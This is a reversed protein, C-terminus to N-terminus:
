ENECAWRTHPAENDVFWARLIRGYGYNPIGHADYFARLIRNLRRLNYLPVNQFYHHELHYNSNLYIWRWFFNGDIRTSWRAVESPDIAYHQGLRNLSFAVPFVLLYPVLYVRLAASFGGWYFLGALVALHFLITVGREIAITRQLSPEYSVSERKAATFYIPILLPTWYLLKVLRSRKKPSLWHRKPDDLGDGLNDHHDLHWRTFQSASIGSPVAYLIGLARLWRPRSRQFVTKHVVEHLLVTYDFYCFGLLIAPLPWFYGLDFRLLAFICLATVAVLRLAVLFHRPASRRHLAKLENQDLVEGLERRLDKSAAWYSRAKSSM